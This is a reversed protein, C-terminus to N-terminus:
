KLPQIINIEKMWGECLDTWMNTTGPNNRLAIAHEGQPFIHLSSSVGQELLATYFLVSNHPDVAKDNAAHVLFTPPTGKSVQLQNSYNEIMQRSANAGLLNDRSGTHAYKGLDIVPSILIMFSPRSSQNDLSDGISSLDKIAIGASAALHGGASIGMIGVKEKNIKWKSANSRICKIARQADMLPGTERTVLDPSNPLRYNLVFATIGISNYWKALQTGSIVYALRQYGGGPCIVIAAGTNEQVSPFFAYFGPTGVQYIRENVISDKLTMGKSNPMKGAPWIPIFEQAHLHNCFLFFLLYLLRKVQQKLSM